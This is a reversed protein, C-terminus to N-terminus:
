GAEPTADAVAFDVAPSEVPVGAALAGATHAALCYACRNENAVSIAVQESVPETISGEALHRDYALLARTLPLSLAVVV